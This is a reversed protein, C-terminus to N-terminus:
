HHVPAGQDPLGESKPNRITEDVSLIVCAAETAANLAHERILVPEWIHAQFTDLIGENEIDVGAWIDGKAHAARLKSLIDTSDFGANDALQRPIVELARAYAAVLLQSKDSIKRSEERLYKSLEMEVAGGGGVVSEHQVTRKVIMLADHLSRETEAIFQDAGGRLVITATKADKCGTFLNFRESGVQVEEFLECIGLVSDNLDNLSTQIVAGTAKGVRILDESPVRGACFIDRDAFYQTALDGIPLRSLVVKAGSAAIKDLKDYIIKWEADVVAQYEDVDNIRVEANTKESKLELEVNLSVIKPNKFKKPQQEFGAYSFTKKFAVGKVL